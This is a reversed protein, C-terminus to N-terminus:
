KNMERQPVDDAPFGKYDIIGLQKYFDLFDYVHRGEAVKGDVIHFIDVCSFSMKKGTPAIGRYEGNHTGTETEHVWVTDGEAIMDTINVHFDPFSKYFISITQKIIDLGRFQNTQDYYDTAVFDDLALLDQSNLAELFSRVIAKNEELSMLYERM